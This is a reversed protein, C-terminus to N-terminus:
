PKAGRQVFAVCQGENKFTTGFNRWGGNKCQDKSTPLPQADTIVIDGSLIPSPPAGGPLPEAPCTTPAPSIFSHLLFTDQGAGDNDELFFLLGFTTGRIEFEFVGVTARNGSVALCTVPYTIPFLSGSLVTGHPNEGSPGSHVDFTFGNGEGAVSDETPAQAQVASAGALLSTAVLACIAFRTLM